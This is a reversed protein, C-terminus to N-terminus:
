LDGAQTNAAEQLTMLMNFLPDEKNDQGTISGSTDSSSVPRSNPPLPAQVDYGVDDPRVRTLDEQDLAQSTNQWPWTELLHPVPDDWSSRKGYLLLGERVCDMIHPVLNLNWLNIFWNRSAAAEAPCGFFYSPSLTAEQSGHSELFKNILVFAKAVWEVIEYCESNHSRTNVEIALLKRRLYRGLYGRVPEIHNAFLIWRFNCRLQLDTTNGTTQTMTGIIYPSPNSTFPLLERLLQDLNPAHHLNDLIIVEPPSSSNIGSKCEESVRNLFKEFENLNERQITFSEIRPLSNGENQKSKVIMESIKGAIYTKGTSSPGSIIVQRHEKILSIYRQMISKPVLTEFSIADVEGNIDSHHLILKISRIDGIIYGYPLLEPEKEHVKRSIEGVLYCKLSECSLGLNTVPDVLMIYETFVREVLSDYIGVLSVV